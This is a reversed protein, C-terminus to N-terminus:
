HLRAPAWSTTSFHSGSTPSVTAMSRISVAPTSPTSSGGGSHSEAKTTSRSSAAPRGATATAEPSGRGLTDAMRMSSSAAASAM